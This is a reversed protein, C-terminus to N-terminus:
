IGEVARRLGDAMSVPPSWELERRAASIDVQLSQTLRQIAPSRGVLGGLVSLASVSVPLLRPRVGLAHAIRRILETTSVDDGDSVLYSRNAASSAVVCRVILDALNEVGVLSRVNDIAGLPMPVGRKVARILAAFNAKVGPGYVLPPRITVVEIGGLARLALEAEVKSIAYPDEAALPSTETFRGSEGHVKVTSLFVIRRVGAERAAHALRMTGVVNATRFEALPDTAEDHVQHVRAALHVVVDVGECAQEWSDTGGLDGVIVQDETSALGSRQRRMALRVRLEPETRLRERLSQGVFGSAGTILM